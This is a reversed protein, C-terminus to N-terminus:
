RRVSRLADVTSLRSARVAPTLGTIVGTALMMVIGLAIQLGSLEM